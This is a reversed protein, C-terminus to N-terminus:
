QPRIPRGYEKGPLGHRPWLTPERGTRLSDDDQKSVAKQHLVAEQKNDTKLQERRSVEDATGRLINFSVGARYLSGRQPDRIGAVEITNGLLLNRIQRPQLAVGKYTLPIETQEIRQRGITGVDPHYTVRYLPHLRLLDEVLGEASKRGQVPLLSVLVELGRRFDQPRATDVTANLLRYQAMAERVTLQNILPKDNLYRDVLRTAQQVHDPVPKQELYVVPYANGSNNRGTIPLILQVTPKATETLNSHPLPNLLVPGPSHVVNGHADRLVPCWKQQEGQNVMEGGTAKMLARFSDRFLWVVQGAAHQDQRGVNSSEGDSHRYNEPLFSVAMGMKQAVHAISSDKEERSRM